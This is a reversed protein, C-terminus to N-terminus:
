QTQKKLEAKVAALRDLAWQYGPQRALADEYAAVAAKLDGQQYYIDGRTVYADPLDPNLGIAQNIYHEAMPYNKLNWVYVGAMSRMAWYNKPNLELSHSFEQLAQTATYAPGLGQYVEGRYLYATSSASAELFDMDDIAGDYFSLAKNLDHPELRTQYIRGAGLEFSSRGIRVGVKEQVRIAELYMDLASQWNSANEYSRAANLWLKWNDPNSPYLEAMRQALPLMDINLKLNAVITFYGELEKGTLNVNSLAQKAAQLDGQRAQLFYVQLASM